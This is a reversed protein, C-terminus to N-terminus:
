PSLREKLCRRPETLPLHGSEDVPVVEIVSNRERIDVEVVEPLLSKPITVGHKTVNARMM